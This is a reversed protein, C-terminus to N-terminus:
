NKERGSAVEPNRVIHNLKVQQQVEYFQLWTTYVTNQRTDERLFFYRISKHTIKLLTITEEKVAPYYGM